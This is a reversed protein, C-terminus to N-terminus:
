CFQALSFSELDYHLGCRTLYLINEDTLTLESSLYIIDHEACYDFKKPDLNYLYLCACIFSNPHLKDKINEFHSYEDDFKNWREQECDKYWNNM